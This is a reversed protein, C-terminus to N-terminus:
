TRPGLSLKYDEARLELYRLFDESNPVSLGDSKIRWRIDRIASEVDRLSDSSLFQERKMFEGISDLHQKMKSSGKLGGIDRSLSSTSWINRKEFPIAKGEGTLSKIESNVARRRNQYRSKLVSEETIGQARTFLAQDELVRANGERLDVIKRIDAIARKEGPTLTLDIGKELGDLNDTLTEVEHVRLPSYKLVIDDQSAILKMMEDFSAERSDLRKQIARYEERDTSTMADQAMRDVSGQARAEIDKSAFRQSRAITDADDLPSDYGRSAYTLSSVRVEKTVTRGDPTQYKITVYDAVDTSRNFGVVEVDIREGTLPDRYKSDVPYRESADQFRSLANDYPNTNVPRRLIKEFEAREADTIPREDVKFISPTEPAPEIEAEPKPAVFEDLLDTDVGEDRSSRLKLPRKLMEEFDEEAKLDELLRRTRAVEAPTSNRSAELKALEEQLDAIKQTRLEQKSLTEVAEDVDAGSSRLRFPQALMRKIDPDNIIDDLSANTGACGFSEVSFAFILIIGLLHM